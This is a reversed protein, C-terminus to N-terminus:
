NDEYNPFVYVMGNQEQIKELDLTLSPETNVPILYKTCYNERNELYIVVVGEKYDPYAICCAEMKEDFTKEKLSRQIANLEETFNNEDSISLLTEIKNEADLVLGMAPIKNDKLLAKNCRTILNALLDPFQKESKIM